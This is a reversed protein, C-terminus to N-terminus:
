ALRSPAVSGALWGDKNFVYLYSYESSLWKFQMTYLTTNKVSAGMNGPMASNRGRIKTGEM